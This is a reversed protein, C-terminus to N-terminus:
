LEIFFITKPDGEATNPYLYNVSFVDVLSETGLKLGIIGHHMINWFYHIAKSLLWGNSSWIWVFFTHKLGLTCNPINPDSTRFFGNRCIKQCEMITYAWFTHIKLFNKKSSWIGCILPWIVSNQSITLNEQLNSDFKPNLVGMIERIQLLFQKLYMSQRIVM